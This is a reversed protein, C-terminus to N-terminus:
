AQGGAGPYVHVQSWPTAPLIPQPCLFFHPDTDYLFTLPLTMVM